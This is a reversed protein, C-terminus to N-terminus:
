ITLDKVQVIIDKPYAIIEESKSVLTIAIDKM